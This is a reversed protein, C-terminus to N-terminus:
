LTKENLEVIGLHDSELDGSFNPAMDSLVIDVPNM